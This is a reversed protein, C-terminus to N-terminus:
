EQRARWREFPHRLDGEDLLGGDLYTKIMMNGGQWPRRPDDDPLPQPQGGAPLHETAKDRPQYGIRQANSNDWVCHVNDSVGWVVLHGVDPATLACRVLETLDRPSIWMGLSRYTNPHDLCAGIRLCVTEIGYHDYYYRSLLEAYGKSVAYLSDPRMPADADLRAEAPHYGAVHNTSALVVRRVGHLLAAHYLNYTGVLNAQLIPEFASENSVGGFHVIASVGQVATAVALPDALDAAVFREGAVPADREGRPAQLDSLRLETCLHRLGPRLRTALKGSAGTLLLSEFVPSSM